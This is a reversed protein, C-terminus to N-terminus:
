KEWEVRYIRIQEYPTGPEEARTGLRKIEIFGPASGLDVVVKRREETPVFTVYHDLKRDRMYEVIKDRRDAPDMSARRYYDFIDPNILAGLDLSYRGCSGGVVGLGTYGVLVRAGGPTNNTDRIWDAAEMRLGENREVEVRFVEVAHVAQFSWLWVLYWFGVVVAALLVVVEIRELLKLKGRIYVFSWHLGILGLVVAAAHVGAIYRVYYGGFAPGVPFFFGYAGPLLLYGAMVLTGILPWPSSSGRRLGILSTGVVVAIGAALLAAMVRLRVGLEIWGSAQSVITHFIREIFARDLAAPNSAVIKGLYTSPLLHGTHAYVYWYAPVAFAAWVAVTKIVAKAPVRKDGLARAISWAVALGLPFYIGEPRSLSVLGFLVGLLVPRPAEALLAAAIAVVLFITLPTEMGGISNMLMLPSLAMASGAVLAFWPSKTKDLVVWGAGACFLVYFGGGLCFAIANYSAPTFIGVLGATLIPWLLSTCGFSIEGPNFSFGHGAALNLAYRRFIYADDIPFGLGLDHADLMYFYIAQYLALAAPILVSAVAAPAGGWSRAKSMHQNYTAIQCRVFIDREVPYRVYSAIHALTALLISKGKGYVNDM